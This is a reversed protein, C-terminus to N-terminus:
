KKTLCKMVKNFLNQLDESRQYVIDEDALTNKNTIQGRAEVADGFCNMRSFKLNLPKNKEHLSNISADSIINKNTSDETERKGDNSNM